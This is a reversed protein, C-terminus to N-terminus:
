FLSSKDAVCAHLWGRIKPPPAVGLLHIKPSLCCNKKPPSCNNVNYFLKVATLITNTLNEPLSFFQQKTEM